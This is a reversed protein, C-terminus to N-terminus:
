AIPGLKKCVDTVIDSFNGIEFTPILLTFVIRCIVFLSHTYYALIICIPLSIKLYAVHLYM